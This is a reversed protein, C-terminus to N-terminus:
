PVGVIKHLQINLGYEVFHPKAFESVLFEVVQQTDRARGGRVIPSLFVKVRCVRPKNIRTCMEANVCLSNVKYITLDLLPRDISPEGTLEIPVKFYVDGGCTVAHLMWRDLGMLYLPDDLHELKIDVVFRMFSSHVDCQCRRAKEAIKEPFISGNTEVQVKFNRLASVITSVADEYLLPEGGTILLNRCGVIESINNIHLIVDELKMLKGSVKQTHPTDCYACRMNCGSFRLFITREGAPFSPGVEGSISFFLEEVPFVKTLIDNM